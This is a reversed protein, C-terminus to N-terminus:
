FVVGPLDMKISDEWRRTILHGVFREIITHLLPSRLFPSRKVLNRESFWGFRLLLEKCKMLAAAAVTVIFDPGRSPPFTSFTSGVV